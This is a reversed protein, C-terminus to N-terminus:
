TTPFLQKGVRMAYWPLQQVVEVRGLVVHPVRSLVADVLVHGIGQCAVKDSGAVVGVQHAILEAGLRRRFGIDTGEHIAAATHYTPGGQQEQWDEGTQHTEQRWLLNVTPVARAVLGDDVVPV